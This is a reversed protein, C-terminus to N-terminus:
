VFLTNLYPLRFITFTSQLIAAHLRDHHPVRAFTLADALRLMLDIEDITRDIPILPMPLRLARGTMGLTLSPDPPAPPRRGAVLNRALARFSLRRQASITRRM